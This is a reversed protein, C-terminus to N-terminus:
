YVGTLYGPVTIYSDYSATIQVYYEESYYRPVHKENKECNQNKRNKKM